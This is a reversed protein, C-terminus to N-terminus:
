EILADIGKSGLAKEVEELKIFTTRTHPLKYRKFVGKELLYYLKRSSVRLVKSAESVRLIKPAAPKQMALLMRQNEEASKEITHLRDSIKQLHENIEALFHFVVRNEIQQNEDIGFESEKEHKFLIADIRRRFFKRHRKKRYVWTICHSSVRGKARSYSVKM